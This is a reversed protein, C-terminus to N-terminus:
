AALSASFAFVRSYRNPGGAGDSRGGLLNGSIRFTSGEPTLTIATCHKALEAKARPVDAVLMGQIDKLRRRVFEDIERFRARRDGVVGRQHWRTGKRAEDVRRAARCVPAWRRHRAGPARDRGQAERAEHAHHGPAIQQRRAQGATPTQVRRPRVRGRRGCTTAFLYGISTSKMRWSSIIRSRRITGPVGSTATYGTPPWREARNVSLSSNQPSVRAAHALQKLARSYQGQSCLPHARCYDQM